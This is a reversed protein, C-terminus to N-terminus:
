EESLVSNPFRSKKRFFLVSEVSLYAKRELAEKTNFANHPTLIINEHNSNLIEKIPGKKLHGQRLNEALSSECEFVDLAMGGLLKKNMLRVLDKTPAIEGRSINIFFPKRKLRKLLEYSLLQHTKKTLPLACFIADALLLGKKLSVYELDSLRKVLDCGYVNMGLGRCLYVIQQGINGVGLVFANKNLVESGTIHDRNFTKFNTMQTKVKRSLMLYFMTAQEAVARSCYDGLFGCQVKEKSNKIFKSIHDHGQSRTLVGDLFDAWSLPINSQTRVSIIKSPPLSINSEQITSSVFLAKINKPLYKKLARKEEEFVEFFAVDYKFMNQM